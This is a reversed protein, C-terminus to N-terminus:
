VSLKSLNSSEEYKEEKEIEQYLKEFLEQMKEDVIEVLLLYKELEQVPEFENSARTRIENLEKLENIYDLVKISVNM